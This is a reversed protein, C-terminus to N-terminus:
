YEDEDPGLGEVRATALAGCPDMIAVGRSISWGQLADVINGSQFEGSALACRAELFAHSFLPM